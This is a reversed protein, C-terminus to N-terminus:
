HATGETNTNGTHNAGPAQGAEGQAGSEELRHKFNAIEDPTGIVLLEDGSRLAEEGGPNLVRADERRIGVIQVHYNRAPSLERLTRGGASGGAPVQLTEMRVDELEPVPVGGSVTMLFKRGAELQRQAGILLVKDRPYLTTDPRPRSILWGQREIGVVVCGFRARLDLEAIQKGQCDALDPLTCGGAHLDWDGHGTLWPAATDAGAGANGQVASQLGAEMESHWRVLKRRLLLLAGLAVPLSGPLVWRAAPGVPLLASLWLYIAVGAAVKFVMEVVPRLRAAHPVGKVSMQAYLLCLASINRWLAVLPGMVLLLAAVWFLVTSAHPFLWDEGLWDEVLGRLPESFVLLGTVFFVEVAVQVIRKKSLQWLRNQQQRAKLADIRTYYYTQWALLWRPMMRIMRESLRGANRTLGPATLTTALSVGVILPYFREPLMKTSIGMQAIIFSFEGVPTMMLGTRLATGIQAGGVALGTTVGATRVAITLVAVILIMWWSDVLLRPDILLGIAVFFVATFVDRMGEMTREVRTRHPTESVIMGLLFAGMALSYGSHHAVVALGFLM